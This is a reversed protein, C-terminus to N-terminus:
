PAFPSQDGNSAVLFFRRVLFKDRLTPYFSARQLLLVRMSLERHRSDELLLFHPSSSSSSTPMGTQISMAHDTHMSMHVCVSM